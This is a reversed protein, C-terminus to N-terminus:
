LQTSIQNARKYNEVRGEGERKGNTRNEVLHKEFVM